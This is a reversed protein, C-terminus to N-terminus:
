GNEVEDMQAHCHPCMKPPPMFITYEEYGCYSCKFDESYPHKLFGSRHGLPIWKAIIGSGEFIHEEGLWAEVGLVSSNYRMAIKPVLTNFIFESLEKDSLTNCMWQRNTM